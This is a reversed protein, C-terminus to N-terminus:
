EGSFIDTHVFKQTHALFLCLKIRIKPKLFVISLVRIRLTDVLGISERKSWLVASGAQDICMSGITHAAWKACGVLWRLM